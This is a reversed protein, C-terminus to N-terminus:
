AGLKYVSAIGPNMFFLESYMSTSSYKKDGDVLIVPAHQVSIEPITIGYMNRKPILAIAYEGLSPLLILETNEGCAGALMDIERQLGGNARDYLKDAITTGVVLKINSRPADFADAKDQLLRVMRVLDDAIKVATPTAATEKKIYLNDRERGAKLTTVVNYRADVGSETVATVFKLLLNSTVGLIQKIHADRFKDIFYSEVDIGRQRYQIAKIRKVVESREAGLMAVKMTYNSETFSAASASGLEEATNLPSDFDLRHYNLIPLGAKTVDMNMPIFKRIPNYMSLDIKSLITQDVRVEIGFDGSAVVRTDVTFAM